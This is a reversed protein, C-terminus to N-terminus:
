GCMLDVYVDRRIFYILKFSYELDLKVIKNRRCVFVSHPSVFYVRLIRHSRIGVKM